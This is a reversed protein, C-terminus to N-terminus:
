IRRANVPYSRGDVAMRTSGTGVSQRLPLVWEETTRSPHWSFVIKDTQINWTGSGKAGSNYKDHWRVKGTYNTSGKMDFEYIWQWNGVNVEWKGEPNFNNIQGSLLKRLMDDFRSGDKEDPWQIHIHSDHTSNQGGYSGGHRDWEQRDYKLSNWKMMTRLLRFKQILEYAVAKEPGVDNFLIIDLARGQNHVDGPAKHSGGAGQLRDLMQDPLHKGRGDRMGKELYQGKLIPPGVQILQQLTAQVSPHSM